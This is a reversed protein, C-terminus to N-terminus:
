LNIDCLGPRDGNPTLLYVEANLKVDVHGGVPTADYNHTVLFFALDRSNIGQDDFSSVLSKLSTINEIEGFAMVPDLFVAIICVAIIVKLWRM